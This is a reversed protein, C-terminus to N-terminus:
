FCSFEYICQVHVQYVLKCMLDTLFLCVKLLIDTGVIISSIIFTRALIELGAAYSEQLLFAVLSIELCLM